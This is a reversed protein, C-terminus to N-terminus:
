SSARDTLTLGSRHGFQESLNDASFLNAGLLSLTISLHLYSPYFCFLTKTWLKNKNRFRSIGEQFCQLDLDNEKSVMQCM